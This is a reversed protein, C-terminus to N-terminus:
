DLIILSRELEEMLMEADLGSRESVATLVLFGSHQRLEVSRVSLFARGKATDASGNGTASALGRWQSAVVPAALQGWAALGGKAMTLVSHESELLMPATVFALFLFDKEEARHTLVVIETRGHETTIPKRSVTYPVPSLIAVHAEPYKTEKIEPQWVPALLLHFRALSADLGRLTEEVQEPTVYVLGKPTSFPKNEAAARLMEEAKEIMARTNAEGTSSAEELLTARADDYAPTLIMRRALLSERASEWLGRLFGTHTAFAKTVARSFDERFQPNDRLHAPISSWFEAHLRASVYGQPAIVTQAIERQRVNTAEAAMASFGAMTVALPVAMRIFIKSM